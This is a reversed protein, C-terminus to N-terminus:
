VEEFELGSFKTLLWGRLSWSSYNKSSITLTTKAMHGERSGWFAEAWGHAAKRPLRGRRRGLGTRRANVCCAVHWNQLRNARSQSRYQMAGPAPASTFSTLSTGLKDSGCPGSTAM